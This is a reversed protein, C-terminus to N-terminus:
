IYCDQVEEVNNLLLNSKLESLVFSKYNIQFIKILADMQIQCQWKGFWVAVRKIVYEAMHFPRACRHTMSVLNIMRCSSQAKERTDLFASCRMYLLRYYAMQLAMRSSTVNFVRKNRSMNCSRKRIYLWLKHHGSFLVFSPADFSTTGTSPLIRTEKKQLTMTDGDCGGLRFDAVEWSSIEHSGRLPNGHVSDVWASGRRRLKSPTGRVRVKLFLCSGAWM